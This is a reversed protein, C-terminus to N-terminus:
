LILYVTEHYLLSFSDLFHSKADIIASLFIISSPKPGLKDSLALKINLVAPATRILNWINYSILLFHALRSYNFEHYQGYWHLNFVKRCPNNIKNDEYRRYATSVTTFLRIISWKCAFSVHLEDEPSDKFFFETITNRYSYSSVNGHSSRLFSNAWPRFLNRPLIVPFRPFIDFDTVMFRLLSQKSRTM